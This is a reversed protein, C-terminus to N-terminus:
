RTPPLRLRPVFRKAGKATRPPIVVKVSSAVREAESEQLMSLSAEVELEENSDDGSIPGMDKGKGKGKGKAFAAPGMKAKTMLGVEVAARLQQLQQVRRALTAEKERVVEALMFVEELAKKRDADHSM